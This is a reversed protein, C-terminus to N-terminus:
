VSRLERLRMETEIIRSVEKAIIQADVQTNGSGMLNIVPSINFTTGGMFSTTSTGTNTTAPAMGDGTDSIGRSKLVSKTVPKGGWSAYMREIAEAVQYPSEGSKLANLVGKAHNQMHYVNMQMGQEYNAFNKVGDRNFDNWPGLAEAGNKPTSKVALPNFSARTGETAIWASMLELNATTVPAGVRRLFDASWQGIDVNSKAMGGHRFDAPIEFRSQTINRRRAVVKGSGSSSGSMRFARIAESMSMGKLAFLGTDTGSGSGMSHEANKGSGGSTFKRSGAPIGWAAGSEEYGKRSNPLESPQVHWPEDNVDAFHKLGFRHANAKIWEYDGTLDAALGIEHMSRGPPAVDAGRVKKWYKGEWFVDTPESSEAYRSRFMSEQKASDRYGNDFGVRGGSAQILRMVRDQMTPHMKSFSSQSTAKQLTTSGSANTSPTGLTSVGSSAMGDGSPGMATGAGTAVAGAIMLPVGFASGVGTATMAAGAMSMLPGIGKLLGGIMQRNNKSEIGKGIIGSLRDELRGFMKELSQTSKELKAFNDQQRGYFDEERNVKVRTTEEIQTSFNEEIGMLSRQGQNSPDYMGAGPRKAQYQKNAMAYQIVLDQTQQDLGMDMLRMRTNSGQQLATEPNRLGTLGSARALHQLLETGSRQGGGPKYLSMGTTMFMRNAVQASGLNGLIKTVDEAGLSYGSLTRIGETFAAQNNALIGTSAQLGMLANIGTEGLRYNTLPQRYTNRVQANSMGTIQQYLVSMKDASSSYIYGREIRADMSGTVGGLIQGVAMAGISFGSGGMGRAPIPQGAYSAFGGGSRSPDLSYNTRSSGDDDPSSNNLTPHGHSGSAVASKAGRGGGRRWARGARGASKDLDDFEKAAAKIERRLERAARVVDTAGKAFQSFGDMGGRARDRLRRPRQVPANSGFPDAFPDMAFPDSFPDSGSGTIDREAM